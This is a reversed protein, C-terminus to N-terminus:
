RASTPRWRQGDWRWVMGTEPDRLGEGVRTGPQEPGGPIGLRGDLEADMQTARNMDGYQRANGAAATAARTGAIRENTADRNTAAGARILDDWTATDGKLGVLAMARAHGTDLDQQTNRREYEAIPADNQWYNRTKADSLGELDLMASQRKRGAAGMTRDAAMQSDPLYARADLAESAKAEEQTIQARLMRLALDRIPAGARSAGYEPDMLADWMNGSGGGSTSRTAAKPQAAAYASYSAEPLANLQRSPTSGTASRVNVDGGGSISPDLTFKDGALNAALGRVKYYDDFDAWGAGGALTGAPHAVAATRNQTKQQAVAQDFAALRQPDEALTARYKMLGPNQWGSPDAMGSVGAFTQQRAQQRREIPNLVYPSYAAM